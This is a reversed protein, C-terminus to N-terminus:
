RASSVIEGTYKEQMLENITESKDHRLVTRYQATIDGRTMGTEENAQEEELEDLTHLEIVEIRESSIVQGAGFGVLLILLLGAIAKLYTM